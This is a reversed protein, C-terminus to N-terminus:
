PTQRAAADHPAHGTEILTKMRALDADLSSKPDVGFASAIGHGLWGAPPNYSMRIQVRTRGDPEADFRVIGAHAVLAGPLTRWAIQQNPIVRTIEADFEVATDAPGMVRWHSLRPRRDSARVHLVRSMFRPFNEYQSWFAYVEGVPADINITKQLDVARRGSAIGSLRNLPLNTASRAFLGIGLLQATTGALGRRLVGGFVLVLGATGLLLRTTPSWHHQRVDIRDGTPPRGGQLAPVNGPQEYVDLTNVVDHVGPIHDVGRLLQSVERKLIPGSLTVVGTSAVVRIAHPHSVLRGLKARVREVLVADDVNEHRGVRALAMATGYTRNLADRSTTAIARRTVKASHTLANQLEARRRNGRNPDFYYILGAGLGVKAILSGPNRFM